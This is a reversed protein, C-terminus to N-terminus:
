RGLIQVLKAAEEPCREKFLTWNNKNEELWCVFYELNLNVSRVYAQRLSSYRHSLIRYDVTKWHGTIRAHHFGEIFAEDWNDYRESIGCLHYSCRFEWLKRNWFTRGVTVFNPNIKGAM